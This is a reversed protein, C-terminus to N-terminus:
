VMFNKRHPLCIFGKMNEKLVKSNLLEDHKSLSFINTTSNVRLGQIEKSEIKTKYRNHFQNLSNSNIKSKLNNLTFVEFSIPQASKSSNPDQNYKFQLM